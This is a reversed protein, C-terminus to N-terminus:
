NKSVRTFEDDTMRGLRALIENVVEDIEKESTDIMFDAQAYCEQRESWLKEIAEKSGKLLPRDNKHGIRSVIAEMSAHLGIIIGNGAVAEMNLPDVM